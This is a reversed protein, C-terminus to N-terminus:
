TSIHAALALHQCQMPASNVPLVLRTYEQKCILKGAVVIGKILHLDLRNSFLGHSDRDRTFMLQQSDGSDISLTGTNTAALVTESAQALINRCHCVNDSPIALCTTPLHHEFHLPKSLCYLTGSITTNFYCWKLYLFAPVHKVM